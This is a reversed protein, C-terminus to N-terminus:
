ERNNMTTFVQSCSGFDLRYTVSDNSNYQTYEATPNVEFQYYNEGIPQLTGSISGLTFTDVPLSSLVTVTVFKGTLDSDSQITWRDFVSTYSTGNYNGEYDYPQSGYMDVISYGCDPKASPLKSADVVWKLLAFVGSGSVTACALSYATEKPSTITTPLLKWQTGTWQGVQGGWGQNVGTMAFCANLKGSDFGSIQIGVGEFQKEAPVKFGAPVIMGNSLTTIGPLSVVAIPAVTFTNDGSVWAVSPSTSSNQVAEASVSGQSTLLLSIVMILSLMAISVKKM